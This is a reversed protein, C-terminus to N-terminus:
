GKRRRLNGPIDSRAGLSHLALPWAADPATPMLQGAQPRILTRDVTPTVPDCDTAAYSQATRIQQRCPTHPGLLQHNLAKGPAQPWTAAHAPPRSVAPM